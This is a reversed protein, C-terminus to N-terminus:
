PHEVHIGGCSVGHVVGPGPRVGGRTSGAGLAHASSLAKPAAEFVKGFVMRVRAHGTIPGAVALQREVQHNRGQRRAPLLEQQRQDALVVLQAKRRPGGTVRHLGVTEANGLRDRWRSHSAGKWSSKTM